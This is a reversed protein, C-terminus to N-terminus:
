LFQGSQGEFSVSDPSKLKIAQGAGHPAAWAWGSPQWWHSVEIVADAGVARARDALMKDVKESSGYTSSGVDIREIVEYEVTPPLRDATIWVQRGHAAYKANVPTGTTTSKINLPNHASCASLLLFLPLFYAFKRATVNDGASQVLASMTTCPLAGIL